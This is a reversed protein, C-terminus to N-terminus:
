LSQLLAALKRYFSLQAAEMQPSNLRAGVVPDFHDFRMGTVAEADEFYWKGKEITAPDREFPRDGGVPHAGATFPFQQSISSVAGDNERWKDIVFNGGGWGPIPPTVFDPRLAQYEAPGKLLSSMSDDAKQRKPGVPLGFWREAHTACGVLAIYYTKSATQFKHNAKLCGQLSLDFAPNDEGETFRHNNEFFALLEETSPNAKGIWQDLYLDYDEGLDHVKQAAAKIAEIFNLASRVLFGPAGKLRGTMEDCSIYTLTSGNLVGTVCVVAEIWNQNSGIGWFDEALLQQLQLCTHAGASHGILIVPNDESWDPVFGKGTLDRSFQAHGEAASHEASYDIKTGKIHAFVECARDHFSSIPGCKVWHPKFQTGRFQALADGWYPFGGM